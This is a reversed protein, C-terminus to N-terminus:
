YMCSHLLQYSWIWKEGVDFLFHGSFVMRHYLNYLLAILKPIVVSNGGKGTPAIPNIRKFITRREETTTWKRIAM